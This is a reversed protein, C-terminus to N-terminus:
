RFWPTKLMGRVTQWSEERFESLGFQVAPIDKRERFSGGLRDWFSFISSYNSNTEDAIRSHHVRHMNPSVVLLRLLSDWKEPVALNSHHFLIVPQLALEYIFLHAADLGLLPIILLRGLHSFVIEGAHFRLATTCDMATDSHHVRHFRWLFPLKHNVRHWLYMWGDFLILLLAAQAGAPLGPDPIIGFHNRATWGATKLVLAAFFLHTVLVNVLGLGANRLGHSVREARGSFLPFLGELAFLSGLFFIEWAPKIFPTM